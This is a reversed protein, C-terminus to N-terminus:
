SREHQPWANNQLKKLIRTVIRLVRGRAHPPTEGGTLPRRRRRHSSEVVAPFSTKSALIHLGTPFINIAIAVIQSNKV